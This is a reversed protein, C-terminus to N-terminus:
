SIEEIDINGGGKNEISFKYPTAALTFKKLEDSGGYTLDTIGSYNLMLNTSSFKKGEQSILVVKGFRIPAGPESYPRSLDNLVFVITDATADVYLEGRKMVFAPITRVNGQGADLVQNIKEDFVNLSEISQEVVIKDRTKNLKPTVIALAAGILVIGILTYVVTEVWIQGKKKDKM